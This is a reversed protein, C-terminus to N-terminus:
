SKKRSPGTDGKVSSAKPSSRSSRKRGAKTAARPRRPSTARKPAPAQNRAILWQALPEFVWRQAIDSVFMDAHAVPVAENGVRLIEKISSGMKEYASLASAEPVIGDANSLVVLLPNKAKKVEKTVNIGSVVLDGRKVWEAIERNLMRDPNEVTQIMEKMKSTDVIAPHLYLHLLKPVRTLVPLALRAFPRAGRIALIGAMRPSAFASRLMPNVKVWKLPAGITVVSGLLNNEQACALNVYLYTGGLSCGVGDVRETKTETNRVIYDLAVGLDTVAADYFGYQRRGGVRKSNGQARLNLSWVEIGKEAWYAEMSKGRPHYGFIFANMGYGPIIAVPRRTRDLAEPEYTQKLALLWGDGNPVYHTKEIM